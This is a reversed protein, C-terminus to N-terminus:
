KDVKPDGVANLKQSYARANHAHINEYFEALIKEESFEGTNQKRYMDCSFVCTGTQMDVVKM